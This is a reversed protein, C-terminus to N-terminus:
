GNSAGPKNEKKCYDNLLVANECPKANDDWKDCDDDPTLSVSIDGAILISRPTSPCIEFPEECNNTSDNEMIMKLQLIYDVYDRTELFQIIDSRTVCQGFTLKYYDGIAWPAMFEKIDEALQKQYYNRDKGPLLKVTICFDIAEYRPNMARFRVFPSARKQLHQEIKELLDVPM